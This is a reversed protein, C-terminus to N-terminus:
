HVRRFARSTSPRAMLVADESLTCKACLPFLRGLLRFTLTQGYLLIERSAKVPQLYFQVSLCCAAKVTFFPLRNKMIKLVQRNLGDTNVFVFSTCGIQSLIDGPKEEVIRPFKLRACAIIDFIKKSRKEM